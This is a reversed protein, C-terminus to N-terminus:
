YEIKLSKLYVVGASYSSNYKSACCYSLECSTENHIFCNPVSQPIDINVTYNLTSTQNVGWSYLKTTLNDIFIGDSSSGGGGAIHADKLNILIYTNDNTKAIIEARGM